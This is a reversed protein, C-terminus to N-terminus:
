VWIRHDVEAVSALSSPKQQVFQYCFNRAVRSKSSHFGADQLALSFVFGSGAQVYDLKKHLAIRINIL